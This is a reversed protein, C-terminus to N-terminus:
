IIFRIFDNLENLSILIKNNSQTGILKNKTFMTIKNIIDKNDFVIDSINITNKDFINNEIVYKIMNKRVDFFNKNTVTFIKGDGHMDIDKKVDKKIIVKSNTTGIRKNEKIILNLFYSIKSIDDFAFDRKILNNVSELDPVSLRIINELIAYKDNAFLASLCSGTIQNNFHYLERIKKISTSMRNCEQEMLSNKSCHIVNQNKHVEYYRNIIERTLKDIKTSNKSINFVCSFNPSIKCIKCIKKIAAFPVKIDLAYIIYENKIENSINGMLIELQNFNYSRISERILDNNDENSYTIDHKCIEKVYFNLIPGNELLMTKIFAKTCNNLIYNIVYKDYEIIKKSLYMKLKQEDLFYKNDCLTEINCNSICIIKKDLVVGKNLFYKLQATDNSSLINTLLRELQIQSFNILNKVIYFNNYEKDAIYIDLHIDKIHPLYKRKLFDLYIDINTAIYPSVIMKIINKKLNPILEPYNSINKKIVEDYRKNTNLIDFLKVKNTCRNCKLITDFIKTQYSDFFDIDNDMCVCILFCNCETGHTSSFLYEM